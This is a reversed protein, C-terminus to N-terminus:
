SFLSLIFNSFEAMGNFSDVNEWNWTDTSSDYYLEASEEHDIVYIKENTSNNIDILYYDGGGNEGICFKHKIFKDEGYFGLLQNIRILEEKSDYCNSYTKDEYQVLIETLIKPYNTIFSTYFIPLQINFLAEIEKIDSTKM